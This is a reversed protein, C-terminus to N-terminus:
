RKIVVKKAKLTNNGAADKANASVTLTVKKLKALKRKAKKTLKVRV